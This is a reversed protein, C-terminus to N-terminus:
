TVGMTEAVQNMAAALDIDKHTLRGADHTTLRVDVTRYVNRWEPHHNMEECHPAVRQMFEIAAPFDAFRFGRTIVTEDGSLTWGDPVATRPDDM